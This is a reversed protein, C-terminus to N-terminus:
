WTARRYARARLGEAEGQQLLPHPQGQGTPRLVRSDSFWPYAGNCLFFAMTAAQTAVTNTTAPHRLDGGTFSLGFLVPLRAAAFPSASSVWGAESKLGSCTATRSAARVLSGCFM